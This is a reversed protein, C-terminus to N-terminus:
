TKNYNRVLTHYAYDCLIQNVSFPEVVNVGYVEKIRYRFWESDFLADFPADDRQKGVPDGGDNLGNLNVRPWCITANLEMANVLIEQIAIIQNCLGQRLVPNM